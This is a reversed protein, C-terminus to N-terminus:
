GGEAVEERVVFPEVDFVVKVDPEVVHHAIPVRETRIQATRPDLRRKM